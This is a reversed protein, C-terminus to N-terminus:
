SGRSALPAASITADHWALILEDIAPQRRRSHQNNAQDAIARRSHAVDSAMEGSGDPTAELQRRTCRKKRKGSVLRFSLLRLAGDAGM